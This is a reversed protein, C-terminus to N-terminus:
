IISKNNEDNTSEELNTNSDLADNCDNIYEETKEITYGWVVEGGDKYWDEGCGENWSLEWGEPFSKVECKITANVCGVFAAEGIYTISKPINVSKLANCYSFARGRIYTVSYPINISTLGNCYGFAYEGITEVTNPISYTGMKDRSCFILVTKDKNFLIGDEFIFNGNTSDVIINVLSKCAYFNDAINEVSKGIKITNLSDCYSFALSGIWKVSDGITVVKLNRCSSFAYCGISKVTNPIILSTLGVCHCFAREGIDVLSEPIVISSLKDCGAFAEKGIHQVSNGIDLSILEACGSFAKDGIDTVSEPIVISSLKDCGSFASDWIHQVSEGIIVSTLGKCGYFADSGIDTVSKPITVSTLGICKKFADPNINRVFAPITYSGTKCQPFRVLSKNKNFLVGDESMYEPNDNAVNIELLKPCDEFAYYGISSVSNPITVSTLEKCGKFAGDSICSVKYKVGDYEVESPIVIDEKSEIGAESICVCAKKVYFETFTTYKLNGITFTSRAMVQVALMVSFLFVSLKKM